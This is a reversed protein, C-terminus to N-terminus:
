TDQKKVLAKVRDGLLDGLKAFSRGDTCAPRDAATGLVDEAGIRRRREVVVVRGNHVFRNTNNQQRRM